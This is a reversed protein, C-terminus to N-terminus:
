SSEQIESNILDIISQMENMAKQYVADKIRALHICEFFLNQLGVAYLQDPKIIEFTTYNVVGRFEPSVETIILEWHIDELRNIFNYTMELKQLKGAISDNKILKIDGSNVLTEYINASRHFDSFQSLNMAYYALTDIANRNNTLIYQNAKEYQGLYMANYDIVESLAKMDEQVQSKVNQYTKRENERDVKENNWNDIQLAILIGMVILFIEGIAYILYNSFKNNEILKRKMDKILLLM